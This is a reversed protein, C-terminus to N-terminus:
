RCGGSVAMREITVQQEIRTRFPQRVPGGVPVAVDVRITREWRVPGLEPSWEYTGTETEQRDARVETSDPLLHREERTLRRSLRYREVRRGDRSGDTLRQIVTGFDDRWGAGAGLAVAPLPPFLEALADGLDAVQAV